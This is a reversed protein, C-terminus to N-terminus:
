QKAAISKVASIVLRSLAEKITGNGDHIPGFATIALAVVNYSSIAWSFLSEIEREVLGGTSAFRNAHGVGADIVDADLHIYLDAGGAGIASPIQFNSKRLEGATVVRLKSMSIAGAEEPDLDRTGVLIVNEEKIAMYRPDTASLKRWSRGCAVSLAMGDLYGSQTTEPTNFDAHADLWLVNLEDNHLGSVTGASTICNGALVIPFTGESSIQHVAESLLANLKFTTQIDTLHDADECIITKTDVAYGSEGLLRDLGSGM